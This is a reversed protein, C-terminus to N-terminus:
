AFAPFEVIVELPVVDGSVEGPVEGSVDGSVECLELGVGIKQPPGIGTWGGPGGIPVPLVLEGGGVGGGGEGVGTGVVAGLV